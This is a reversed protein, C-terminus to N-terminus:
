GEEIHAGLRNMFATFGPFSTKIMSGDDIGVPARAALGLVLFAMAIRHDMRTEVMAGGPPAGCGEVHLWDRGSRVDVGNAALGTAVTNLRDSEKVRLADIGPMKTFGEACAAAIALVPYEDIMSAARAAPVAVGKLRSSRIMLDGVPEGGMMRENSVTIDAGMERLTEILGCRTPNLLITDLVLSSNPTVLAAVMPFAASSADGPVRVPQAVLEAFGTVATRRGYAGTTIEIAAGFTKLLRETHDRTAVPEVVTTTGPTNLAALLIASKIQASPITLRHTIPIPNKTGKINLPLHSKGEPFRAGMKELIVTVREMPRAQLSADGSFTAEIPTTAVVGLCLRAGTGSNGFDLSERPPHLGGVGVGGVRWAGDRQRSIRAGLRAMARATALVDDSELLGHIRTEGVALTAMILARHSISKDGPVSVRGTLSCSPKSLLPM